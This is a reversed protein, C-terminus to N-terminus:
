FGQRTLATRTSEYIPFFMGSVIFWWTSRPLAGAFLGRAGTRFISSSIEKISSGQDTRSTMIRTRLVDFPTTVFAAVAGATGSTIFSGSATSVNFRSKLDDQIGFLLAFFPWDRAVTAWFGKYFGRIGDKQWINSIIHSARATQHANGDLPPETQLRSTVVERPVKIFSTIFDATIVSQISGHGNSRLNDYIAFRLGGQPASPLVNTFFGRFLIRPSLRTSPNSAIASSQKLTKYSDLFHMSSFAISIATSGALFNSTFSHPSTYKLEEKPRMDVSFPRPIEKKFDM